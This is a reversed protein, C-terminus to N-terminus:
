PLAVEFQYSGAPLEYVKGGKSGEASRLEAGTALNRGGLQFRSADEKTLPLQGMANPPITLKWTV